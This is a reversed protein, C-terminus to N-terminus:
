PTHGISATRQNVAQRGETLTTARGGQSPESPLPCMSPPADPLRSQRRCTRATTRADATAMVPRYARSCAPASGTLIPVDAALTLGVVLEDDVLEVDDDDVVVVNGFCQSFGM